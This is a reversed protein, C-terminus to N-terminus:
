ISTVAWDVRQDCHLRCSASRLHMCTLQSVAALCHCVQEVWEKAVAAPKVGHQADSDALGHAQMLLTQRSKCAISRQLITISTAPASRQSACRKCCHFAARGCNCIETCSTAHLYVATAHQKTYVDTAHQKTYVATAHQKILVATAHQETYM